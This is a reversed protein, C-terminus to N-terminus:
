MIITELLRKSRRSVTQERAQASLWIVCSAGPISFLRHPILLPFLGCGSRGADLRHVLAQLLLKGFANLVVTLPLMSLLARARNDMTAVTWDCAPSKATGSIAYYECLMFYWSACTLSRKIKSSVACSHSCLQSQVDHGRM